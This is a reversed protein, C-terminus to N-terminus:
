GLHGDVAASAGDGCVCLDSSSRITSSLLPMRHRGVTRLVTVIKKGQKILKTADAEKEARLCLVDFRLVSGFCNKKAKGGCELLAFCGRASVFDRHM